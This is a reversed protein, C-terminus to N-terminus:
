LIGQQSATQQKSGEPIIALCPEMAIKAPRKAHGQYCAHNHSNQLKTRCVSMWIMRGMRLWASRIRM